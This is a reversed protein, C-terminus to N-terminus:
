RLAVGEAGVSLPDDFEDCCSVWVLQLLHPSATETRIGGPRYTPPLYWGLECCTPDGHNSVGQADSEGPWAAGV